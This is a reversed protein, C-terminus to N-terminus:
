KSLEAIRKKNNEIVNMLWVKDKESATELRKEYNSITAEL